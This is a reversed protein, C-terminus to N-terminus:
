RVRHTPQGRELWRYRAITWRTAWYVMRRRRRGITTTILGAIMVRPVRVLRQHRMLVNVKAHRPM